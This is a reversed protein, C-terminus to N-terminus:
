STRGYRAVPWDDTPPLTQGAFHMMAETTGCDSCVETANDVRSLAGPYGVPLLSLCRPCRALDNFDRRFQGIKGVEPPFDILRCM